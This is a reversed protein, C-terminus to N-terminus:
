SYVRYKARYKEKVSKELIDMRQIEDEEITDQIDRGRYM